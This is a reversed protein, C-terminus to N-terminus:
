LAGTLWGVRGVLGKGTAISVRQTWVRGDMELLVVDQRLLLVVKQWLGAVAEQVRRGRRCWRERCWGPEM